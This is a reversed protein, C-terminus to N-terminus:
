PTLGDETPWDVLEAAGRESLEYIGRDRKGFWGYVNRYLVERAKPDSVAAAVVSAKTPGADRLHSAIRVARQRYATLRKGQSTSQGGPVTDGVRTAFEHRLRAARRKDKRPRTPNPDLVFDVIRTDPDITILGLGLRRFLKLVRKRERRYSKLGAPVGVYVSDSIAFRDVAQLVVGLNLQLKLEVIVPPEEGRLAVVDCREIEGKVEYGLGELVRKLPPYLDAELM